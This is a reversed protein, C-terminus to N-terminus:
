DMAFQVFMKEFNLIMNDFSKIADLGLNGTYQDHLVQNTEPFLVASNITTRQDGIKIPFEIKYVDHIMVGGAGGLNLQTLQYKDMIEKKNANFYEEYIWTNSAGTDFTFLLTDQKSYLEVIPTLYNMALNPYSSETNERPIILKDDGTLQIEGLASIVPYGLIGYIQFDAQPFYLASDPFVMFAVNKMKVNGFEIVKAIAMNATIDNGMIGKVTFSPKLQKLGMADALSSIIVSINAGTDFTLNIPRGKGNVATPIRSGNILKIVSHQKKVMSQKPQDKLAQWISRQNSLDSSESSDLLISYNEILEKTVNLASKYEFLKVHNQLKLKLLDCKTADDIQHLYRDFLEVIAQNSTASANFSSALIASHILRKDPPINEKNANYFRRAKFVQKSELLEDLKATTEQDYAQEQVCSSLMGLIVLLLYM